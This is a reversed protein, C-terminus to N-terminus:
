GFDSLSSAPQKIFLNSYYLTVGPSRMLAAGVDPVHSNFVLWQFAPLREHMNFDYYFTGSGDPQDVKYGLPGPNEYSEDTDRRLAEVRAPSLVDRLCVVGDTEFVDIAMGDALQLGDLMFEPPKHRPPELESAAVVDFVDTGM